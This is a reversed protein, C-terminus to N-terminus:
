QIIFNKNNYKKALYDTLKIGDDIYEIHEKLLNKYSELVFELEMGKKLTCYLNIKRKGIEEEIFFDRIKDKQLSDVYNLYEVVKSRDGLVEVKYLIELKNKLNLELDEIEKLLEIIEKKM